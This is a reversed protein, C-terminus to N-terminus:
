GHRARNGTEGGHRARELIEGLRPPTILGTRRGALFYVIVFVTASVVVAQLDTEVFGSVAPLFGLAAAFGAVAGVHLLGRFPILAGPGAGTERMVVGLLVAVQLYTVAVTAIAPGTLGMRDILIVNLLLNLLLTGCAALLVTRPRGLALVLSGYLAIRLPMLLLYIRFTTVSAAFAEGFVAPVLWGASLFLYFWLPWVWKATFLFTKRVLDAFGANDGRHHMSVLVPSVVGYVSSLFVAVFPIEIAGVYFIGLAEKGLWVSVVIKDLWASLIDVAGSLAIPLAFSLQLLVTKRGGFFDIGGTFPRMRRVFMLALAFKVGAFVAMVGFMAEPSVAAVFRWVTLGIFLLGHLVSLLFLYRVRKFLIFVPDAFASAVIFAGYLGFIRVSRVIEPNGQAGALFSAGFVLAAAVALGNGAMLLITQGLFSPREEATLRPIFFTVTEPIGLTFVTFFASFMFVQQFAGFGEAGMSRALGINLIFLSLVYFTRGSGVVGIRGTVGHEDLM